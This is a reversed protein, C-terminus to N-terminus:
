ATSVSEKSVLTVSWTGTYIGDQLPNPAASTGKVCLYKQEGNTYGDHCTNATTSDHSELDFASPGYDTYVATATTPLTGIAESYTAADDYSITTALITTPGDGSTTLNSGTLKIDVQHNATITPDIDEESLTDGPDAADFTVTSVSDIEKYLTVDFSLTTDDDSSSSDDTATIKVHWDDNTAAGSALAVGDLKFYLKFEFSGLNRDSPVTSSTSPSIYGAPDSAGWTNSYETYTFKYRDTISEGASDDIENGFYVEVVVTAIDYMSNEDAVTFKVLYETEPDLSTVAGSDAANRLAAGSIVPDGNGVTVQGGADDAFAAPVSSLVLAIMVLMSIVLRKM